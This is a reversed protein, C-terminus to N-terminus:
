GAQNQTEAPQEGHLILQTFTHLVRMYELRADNEFRLARQLAFGGDAAPISGGTYDGRLQRTHASATQYSSEAQRLKERWIVEARKRATPGASSM